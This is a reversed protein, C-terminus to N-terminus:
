TGEANASQRTGGPAGAGVAVNRVRPTTSTGSSKGRASQGARAARAPSVVMASCWPLEVLRTVSNM